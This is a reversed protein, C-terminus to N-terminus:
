GEEAFTRILHHAIAVPAPVVLEQPHTRTLMMRLDDRSFWRADELETADIAIDRTLAEGRCGIMLSSPFPWPQTAMYGVTGVTIGAEEKVERRVANELTEGPEIFGALCSYSGKAFRPQRGLLCRDGDTILMIAVPDVRPFHETGCSPCARKWGGAIADTATGCNACFRHRRHWSLLSKALGLAALHEESAVHQTALSRLDQVLFEDRDKLSDGVDEDILTSFIPIDNFRGLYLSERVESLASAEQPTFLPQPASRQILIPIEGSFVFTLAAPNAREADFFAADDRREAFRNITGGAYGLRHSLEPKSDSM